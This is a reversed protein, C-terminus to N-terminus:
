DLSPWSKTHEQAAPSSSITGQDMSITVHGTESCIRPTSMWRVITPPPLQTPPLKRKIALKERQPQQTSTTVPQKACRFKDSVLTEDAEKRRAKHPRGSPRKLQPPLIPEMDLIPSWQNPGKIPSIFHNYIELQKIKTNCENVFDKPRGHIM